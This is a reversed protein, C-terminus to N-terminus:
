MKESNRFSPQRKWDGGVVVVDTVDDLEALIADADARTRVSHVGSMDFGPLPLARPGGGTSWVLKNYEIIESDKIVVTKAVPDVSMVRQGTMMTIEREDWFSQPRILILEFSREGSFYEKSLPPREYPIEPEDGIIAVSGDFKHQRLMIATQAGGHGAGVILVDFKM